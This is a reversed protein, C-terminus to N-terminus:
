SYAVNIDNLADKFIEYKRQYKSGVKERNFVAGRIFSYATVTGMIRGPEYVIGDRLIDFMRADEPRKSARSQICEEFLFPTLVAWGNHEASELFAASKGYDNAVVPVSYMSHRMNLCTYYNEQATDYKPMPLIGYNTDSKYLHNIVYDVTMVQFVAEKNMLQDMGGEDTVTFNDPHDLALATIKETISDGYEGYARPNIQLEGNVDKNIVHLDCGYHLADYYTQNIIVLGFEDGADKVGSQNKDQWLGRTLENLKDITWEGSDVLDYFNEMGLNHATTYNYGMVYMNYIVSRSLEGTCYYMKGNITNAEQLDSSWYPAEWNIYPLENLNTYLGQVVGYSAALSYQCVLDIKDSGTLTAIKGIFMDMGGFDGPVSQAINILIGLEQEVNAYHNYTAADITTTGEDLELVWDKAQAWTYINFDEGEYNVDPATYLWEEEGDSPDQSTTPKEETVPQTTTPNDSEVKCALMGSALLSLCILCLILRVCQKKLM